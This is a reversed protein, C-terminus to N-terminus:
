KAPVSLAPKNPRAKMLQGDRECTKGLRCFKWPTTAADLCHQTSLLCFAGRPPERKQLTPTDTGWATASGALLAVVTTVYTISSRM